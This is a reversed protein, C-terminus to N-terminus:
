NTNGNEWKGGLAATYVNIAFKIYTAYEKAADTYFNMFITCTDRLISMYEKGQIAYKSDNYEKEVKSLLSLLDNIKKDADSKLIEGTKDSSFYAMADKIDKISIDVPTIKKLDKRFIVKGEDRLGMKLSAFSIKSLQSDYAQKMERCAASPDVMKLMKANVTELNKQINDIVKMFERSTDAINSLSVKINDRVPICKVTKLKSDDKNITVMSGDKLAEKLEEKQPKLKIDPLSSIQLEVKKEAEKIEDKDTRIVDTSKVIAEDDEKKDILIEEVAKAHNVKNINDVVKEVAEECDEPLEKPLDINKVKEKRKIFSVVKTFFSRIAGPITKTLFKLIAAFWKRLTAAISTTTDKIWQGFRKLVSKEEDNKTAEAIYSESLIKYTLLQNTIQMNYSEKMLDFTSTFDM